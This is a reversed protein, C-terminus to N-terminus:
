FHYEFVGVVSKQSSVHGEITLVLGSSLNIDIGGFAGFHEEQELEDELVLSAVSPPFSELLERETDEHYDFYAAGIYIGFRHRALGLEGKIIFEEWETNKKWKDDTTSTYEYAIEGTVYDGRFASYFGRLWGQKVQFLNVRLGGGYAFNLESFERYAGVIEASIEVSDTLGLRARLSDMHMITLCDEAEGSAASVEEVITAAGIATTRTRKTLELTVERYTHRLGLSFDGRGMNRGNGKPRMETKKRAPKAEIKADAEPPAKLPSPAEAKEHAELSPILFPVKEAPLKEPAPRAERPEESAPPVPERPVPKEAVPKEPIPPVEVPKQAPPSIVKKPPSVPTIKKPEAAARKEEREPPKGIDSIILSETKKLGIYDSLKRDIAEKRKLKAEKLSAFPGIYVRYWYGKKPVRERRAVANYGQAKIIKVHNAARKEHRFSSIHLYYYNEAGSGVAPLFFLVSVIAAIMFGLINRLARTRKVCSSCAM